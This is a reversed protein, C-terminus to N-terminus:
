YFWEQEVFMPWEAGSRLASYVFYGDCGVRMTCFYDIDNRTCIVEDVPVSHKLLAAVCGKRVIAEYV